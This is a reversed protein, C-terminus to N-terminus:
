VRSYSNEEQLDTFWIFSRTLLDGLDTFRKDIGKRRLIEGVGTGLKEAPGLSLVLIPFLRGRSSTLLNSLWLTGMTIKIIAYNWLLEELKNKIGIYM